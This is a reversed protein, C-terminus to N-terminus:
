HGGSLTCSMGTRGRWWQHHLGAQWWQPHLKYGDQRGGSLTYSM